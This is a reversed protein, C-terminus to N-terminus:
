WMGYVPSGDGGVYEQIRRLSGPSVDEPLEDFRFFECRAIERDTEGTLTFDNCSFVIVHDSKGEYFSTYAGLLYLEGLKAGLEEAAERRAAGELTEGRKVGGGPLYWGYQYTHKVLVVAQGKELILRVGVTIPRTIRCRLGNVGYLVRPLLRMSQTGM